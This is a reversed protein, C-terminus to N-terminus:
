PMAAQVAGDTYPQTNGFWQEAFLEVSSLDGLWAAAFLAFDELDVVCDTDLDSDLYGWAGCQYHLFETPTLARDTFRIDDLYGTMQDASDNDFWGRGITWAYGNAALANDNTSSLSTEAVVQSGNGDLKDAYMTLDNGDSVVALYYWQDPTAVFDADLRYREGGITDFNIRFRDDEDNKQFYFDAEAGLESSGDRGIFTQWGTLHDLKVALEITWALPSWNSLSEAMTYGDQGGDFRASLGSGTPTEGEASFSPGYSDDWAYMDFGNVSLDVSGVQATSGTDNMLAGATGDEFNWHAVTPGQLPTPPTVGVMDGLVPWLDQDWSMENVRLTAWGNYLGDYIHYSFYDQGEVATITAHGPGIWRGNTDVFLTGGTDYLLDVGNKDVYPGTISTSRGVIIKYTSDVGSCCTDWNVFLYYYGNRWTIYAAEMAASNSRRALHYITPPSTTPKLTTNNLPTLMIGEWWSGFVLWMDGNEDRVFTGDIANYAPWSSPPSDIIEGEDIWEYDPDFPDLTVNSILAILSTQSGFTSASYCLYYRGNHYTVDPAWLNSVGSIENQVWQPIASFVSGLYDWDVLDSSRRMGLTDGTSYVYYYGDSYIMTPDHVNRMGLGVVVEAFGMAGTLLVTIFLFVGAQRFKIKLAKDGNIVRM